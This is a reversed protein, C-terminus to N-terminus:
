NPSVRDADTETDVGHIQFLGTLFERAIVRYAPRYKEHFVRSHRVAPYGDKAMRAGFERATPGPFPLDGAEALREVETWAAALEVRTGLVGNATQMFAQLLKAPEGKMAMFTRLHVRVFRGDPSIPDFLPEAPGPGLGALERELWRAAAAPDGAAHESGLCAQYILKYCDQPEIQPYRRAQERLIDAFDCPSSVPEAWTSGALVLGLGVVCLLRIM